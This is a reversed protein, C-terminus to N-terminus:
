SAIRGIRFSCFSASFVILGFSFSHRGKAGDTEVATM